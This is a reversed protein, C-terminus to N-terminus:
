EAPGRNHEAIGTEEGNYAPFGVSPHTSDQKSAHKGYLGTQPQHDGAGGDKLKWDTATRQAITQKDCSM